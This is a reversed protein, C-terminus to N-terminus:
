LGMFGKFLFHKSKPNYRQMDSLSSKFQMTNMLQNFIGEKDKKAKPDNPNLELAKEICKLAERVENEIIEIKKIADDIAQDNGFQNRADWMIKKVKNWAFDAIINGKETWFEPVNPDLELIKNFCKIAEAFM